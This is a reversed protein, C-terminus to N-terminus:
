IRTFAAGNVTLATAVVAGDMWATVVTGDPAPLGDISVLLRSIHPPLPPPPVYTTLSIEFKKDQHGGQEWTDVEDAFVDGVMFHIEKGTTAGTGPIRLLPVGNLTIATAVEEGDIIATVVTDDPVREGDITVLVRSIHDPVPQGMVIAPFVLLLAAVTALVLFRAM